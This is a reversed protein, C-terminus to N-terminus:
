FVGAFIGVDFTQFADVTDFTFLVNRYVPYWLVRGSVGAARAQLVAQSAARATAEDFADADILLTFGAPFEERYHIPAGSLLSLLSILQEPAGSSRNILIRAHLWIRYTADDFTGRPQGLIKGLNDLQAGVGSDITRETELQNLVGVLQAKRIEIFDFCAEANSKGQLYQAITGVEQSM